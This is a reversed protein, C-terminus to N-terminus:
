SGLCRRGGVSRSGGAAPDHRGGDRRRLRVPHQGSSRRHDDRHSRERALGRRQAVGADPHGVTVPRLRGGTRDRDAAALAGPRSHDTRVGSRAPEARDGAGTRRPFAVAARRRRAPDRAARIPRGVAAVARGPQGPRTARAPGARRSGASRRDRHRHGRGRGAGHDARDTGQAASRPGQARRGSSPLSTFRGTKFHRRFLPVVAKGTPPVPVPQAEIDLTYAMSPRLAVPVTYSGHGETHYSGGICGARGSKVLQDVADYLPSTFTVPVEDLGGVQHQPIAIGDAGRLVVTLDRGYSQYLQVVQLDNFVIKVVEDAFVFEEEQGPNTALVYADLRDPPADDTKFRFSETVAPFTNTATSGDPQKDESKPTYKVSLTYDTGPALLPVLSTGDLFGTLTDISGSRSQTETDSRGVEGLTLVEVVGLVVAPHSRPKAGPVIRVRLRQTNPDPKVTVTLHVQNAFEPENLYTAVPAVEHWWPGNPDLWTSPLGGTPPAIVTPSLANLPDAATTTMSGDLQEVVVQDKALLDRDVVLYLTAYQSPGTLLDIWREDKRSKAISQLDPELPLEGKGVANVLDPLALARMCDTSRCNGRAAAAVTPASGRLALVDLRPRAVSPDIALGGLRGLLDGRLRDVPAVCVRVLLTEDSPSDIVVRVIGAGTLQLIEAVNQAGSMAARDVIAGTRDFAAAKAARAMTVLTLSVSRMPVAFSLETRFGVDLGRRAGTGGIRVAPYPMNNFDLVTVRFATGVNSPNPDGDKLVKVLYVCTQRPDGDPDGPDGPDPDGPDCNQLVPYRPGIVGPRSRAAPRPTASCPRWSRTSRAAGRSTSRSTSTSPRRGRPERRTRGPMAM